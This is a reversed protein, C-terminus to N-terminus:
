KGARQWEGPILRRLPPVRNMVLHAACRVGPVPFHWDRLRATWFFTGSASLDLGYVAHWWHVPIFLAEGQELTCEIPRAQEFRPFAELDPAHADVRSCNHDSAWFGKPYLAATDSPAYLLVKKQGVIQCLLAEHHSHYHNITRSQHGVWVHLEQAWEPELFRPVSFDGALETLDKGTTLGTLYYHERRAPDELIDVYEAVTMEVPDIARYVGEDRRTVRVRKGGIRARLGEPRWEVLAPWDDMARAIVVPKGKWLYAELFEERTPNEIRDVTDPPAATLPTM